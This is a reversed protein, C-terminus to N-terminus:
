CKMHVVWHGDRHREFSQQVFTFWQQVVTIVHKISYLLHLSVINMNCSKYQKTKYM